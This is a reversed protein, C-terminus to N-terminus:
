ESAEALATLIPVSMTVYHPTRSNPEAVATDMGIVQGYENFLPGGSDGAATKADSLIMGTLIETGAPVTIRETAGTATVVGAAQPVPFRFLSDANGAAVVPEGRFPASDAISATVLDSAGALQLEAVDDTADASIVTAPYRVQDAADTVEISRAAAIVHDNTIVKGTSTLVIATGTTYTGDGNDAYVYGLGESPVTRDARTSAADAQGAYTAGLAISLAPVGALIAVRIHIRKPTTTHPSM